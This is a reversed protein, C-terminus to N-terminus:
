IGAKPALALIVRENSKEPGREVDGIDELAKKITELKSKKKCVEDTDGSSNSLQFIVMLKRGQKFVDLAYDRFQSLDDTHDLMNEPLVCYMYGFDNIKEICFKTGDSLQYGVTIGCYNDLTYRDDLRMMNSYTLRDVGSDAFSCGTLAEIKMLYESIHKCNNFADELQQKTLDLLKNSKFSYWGYEKPIEPEPYFMFELLGSGKSPKPWRGFDYGTFGDTYDKYKKKQYNKRKYVDNILDRLMNEEGPTLGNFFSSVYKFVSEKDTGGYEETIQVKYWNKDFKLEEWVWDLHLEKEPHTHAWSPQQRHKNNTILEQLFEYLEESYMAVCIFSSSSSNTVFDTRIKM